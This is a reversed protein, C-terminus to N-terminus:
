PMWQKSHGGATVNKGKEEQGQGSHTAATIHCHWLPLLDWLQEGFYSTSGTPDRLSGMPDQQPVPLVASAPLTGPAYSKNICFYLREISSYYLSKQGRTCALLQLVTFGLSTALTTCVVQPLALLAAWSHRSGEDVSSLPLATAM